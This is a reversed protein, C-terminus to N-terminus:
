IIHNIIILFCIQLEFMFWDVVDDNVDDIVEHQVLDYLMVKVLTM